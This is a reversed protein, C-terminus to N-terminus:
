WLDGRCDPEKALIAWRAIEEREAGEWSPIKIIEETM